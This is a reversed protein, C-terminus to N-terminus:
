KFELVYFVLGVGPIKKTKKLFFPIVIKRLRRIPITVGGGGRLQNGM